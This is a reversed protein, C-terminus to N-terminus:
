LLKLVREVFKAVCQVSTHFDPWELKIFFIAILYGWFDNKKEYKRNLNLWFFLATIARTEM